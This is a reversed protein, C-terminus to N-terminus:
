PGVVEFGLFTQRDDGEGRDVYKVALRTGIKISEPASPDVGLIQASIAPGNDIQVVGVCFPNKRDYGAAIMAKPGIHITTFATLTGTGPLEVWELSNSHCDPCFPRPPLYMSGCKKCATGMLKHEGLYANYSEQTFARDTM